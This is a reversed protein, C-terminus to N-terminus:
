LTHHLWRRLVTNVDESLGSLQDIVAGDEPLPPIGATTLAAHLALRREDRPALVYSLREAPNPPPLFYDIDDCAQAPAPWTDDRPPVAYPDAYACSGLSQDSWPTM